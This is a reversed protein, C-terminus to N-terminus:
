HEDVPEIKIMRHIVDKYPNSLIVENSMIENKNEGIYSLMRDKNNVLLVRCADCINTYKGQIGIKELINKPGRTAIWWYVINKQGLSILEELSHEHLNGIVLDDATMMAHGCCAKVQGNPHISLSKVIEKCALGSKISSIDNGYVRSQDISLGSGRGSPVVFDQLFIVKKKLEEESINMYNSIYSSVKESSYKSFNDIITAIAIASFDLELAVKVLIAINKISMFKAHYDDFSTNLEDLGAEKLSRLIKRANEETDAWWANTVIRTLMGAKKGAKIGKLLQELFLTTEGGTFVLVEATKVNSIQAIADLM